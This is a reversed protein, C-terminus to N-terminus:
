TVSNLSGSSPSFMSWPSRTRSIIAGPALMVSPSGTMSNSVSLAITSTGDETLPVTLSIRTLSPSFTLTALHDERDLVTGAGLGSSGLDLSRFSFLERAGRHLSCRLHLRSDFSQGCRRRGSGGKRCSGRCGTRGFELQGFKPFVDVLAGQHSHHDGRARLDEFPLRHHFQFGVLRDDFNWRGHGSDHFVNADFFPVLDFHALHDERQFAGPGCRGLPRSM